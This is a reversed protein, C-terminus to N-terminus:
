VYNDPAGAGGTGEILGAEGFSRETNSDMLLMDM